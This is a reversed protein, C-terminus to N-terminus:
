IPTATLKLLAAESRGWVTENCPQIHGPMYEINEKIIGNNIDGGELQDSFQWSQIVTNSFLRTLNSCHGVNGTTKVPFAWCHPIKLSDIEDKFKTSVYRVGDIYHEKDNRIFQM